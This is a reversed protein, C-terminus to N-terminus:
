TLSAFVRDSMANKSSSSTLDQLTYTSSSTTSRGPRWVASGSPWVGERIFLPPLPSLGTSVVSGPVETGERPKIRDTSIKLLGNITRERIASNGPWGRGPIRLIDLHALTMRPHSIQDGARCWCLPSKKRYRTKLPLPHPVM